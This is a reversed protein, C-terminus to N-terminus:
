NWLAHFQKRFLEFFEKLEEEDNFEFDTNMKDRIKDLLAIMKKIDEKLEYEKQYEQKMESESCDWCREMFELHKTLISKMAAVFWDDTNWVANPSFGNKKLYKRNRHLYYKERINHFINKTKWQLYEVKEPTYEKEKM